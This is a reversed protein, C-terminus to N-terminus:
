GYQVETNNAAKYQAKLSKISVRKEGTESFHKYGLLVNRALRRMKGAMLPTLIAPKAKYDINLVLAVNNVGRPIIEFSFYMVGIPFNKWEYVEYKYSQGEIYNIIREKLTIQLGLEVINCVREGGLSAKNESGEVNYSGEIGAHFNAVDGYKSLVTWMQESSVKILIEEHINKIKM